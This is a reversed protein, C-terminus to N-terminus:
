EEGFKLNVSSTKNREIQLDELQQIINLVQTDGCIEARERIKNVSVEKTKEYTRVAPETKDMAQAIKTVRTKSNLRIQKLIQGTILGM